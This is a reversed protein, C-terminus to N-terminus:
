SKQCAGANILSILGNVQDKSEFLVLEADYYYECNNEGDDLSALEPLVMYCYGNAFDPVFGPDCGENADWFTGGLRFTPCPDYGGHLAIQAAIDNNPNKSAM